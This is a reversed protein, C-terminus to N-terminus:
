NDLIINVIGVIDLVNIEGDNNIDSANQQQTTPTLDGLVFNVIIVVDLVNVVGDLNADGSIVTGAGDINLLVHVSESGGSSNIDLFASYEGGLIDNTDVSINVPSSQGSNIEGEIPSATLWNPSKKFKIAMNNQIQSSVLLGSNGLSNQMGITPSFNGTLSNYNFQVEGNPYLVMQFDYFSNENNTWWHAVDNFWVILRDNNSHYYVEGFCYQNCNDNVPNLDDWFGFIAPRPATTSPLSSNDWETNDDGFGVWGNANVIFQSYVEGYFPFDFGIDILEGSQDNQPFTYLTGSESIDVWDFNINPNNNSSAWYNNESDPGGGSNMFPNATISYNLISEDEGINTLIIQDSSMEGQALDFSLSETSVELLAQPGSISLASQYLNLRGGSVTNGQLSSLQDVNNLIAQKIALACSGPDSICLEALSYSAAAHMFGIAGAVHPTAMSTGTYSCSVSNTPVTSCINTGPAGLDITETGYGASNYKVDTNTTNTVSIMYDSSCGTPVDGVSDVNQNSNITATASLIGVAGMADYLDNWVPYSGSNCDAYDVGFSSNTAVVNAGFAGNSELWLTKQDLVYGYATSIVSTQGSSGAVSMIKVNWNVGVVDNGNNGVAGITGAVHTGHSDSPISGDNSYADWGNIDDVYGNNDDDIGNGPIENENVWINEVLDVHNTQVGGDVVAVVIDDGLATIGGTTIDWAEPADIDADPQGGSQGTNNMDWMQSFDPDNPTLRPTTLHDFQAYIVGDLKLIENLANQDSTFKQENFKVTWINMQRVLLNELKFSSSSLQKEINEKNLQQEFKVILTEKQYKVSSFCLGLVLLQLLLLKKM